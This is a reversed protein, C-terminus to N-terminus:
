YDVLDIFLICKGYITVDVQQGRTVTGGNDEAVCKINNVLQVETVNIVLQSSHDLTRVTIGHEHLREEHVFRDSTLKTNYWPVSIEWYVRHGVAVSCDLQFQSGVPSIM